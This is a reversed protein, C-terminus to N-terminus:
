ENTHTKHKNKIIQWHGGKSPGIREIIGMSKLKSINEQVKRPSIKIVKAIEKASTYKNKYILKVIKVQNETLNEVVKEVVKEVDNSTKQYKYSLEVLFGNAIEKYEYRTTINFLKLYINEDIKQSM